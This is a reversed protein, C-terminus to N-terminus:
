GVAVNSATGQGLGLARAMLSTGCMLTAWGQPHQWRPDRPPKEVCRQAAHSGYPKTLHLAGPLHHMGTCRSHM